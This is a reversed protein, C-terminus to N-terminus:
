SSFQLPSSHFSPSLFLHLCHPGVRSNPVSIPSTCSDERKTSTWPKAEAAVVLQTAVGGGPGVVLLGYYADAIYLNGTARHFQLGLPRGCRDAMEPVALANCRLRVRGVGRSPSEWKLVRWVSVGTYPGGGAADLLRPEGPRHGDPAPDERLEHAGPRSPAHSLRGWPVYCALFPFLFFSTLVSSPAM